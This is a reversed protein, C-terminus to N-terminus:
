TACERGATGARGPGRETAQRCQALSRGGGLGMLKMGLGAGSGPQPGVQVGGEGLEAQVMLPDTSKPGKSSGLSPLGPSSM